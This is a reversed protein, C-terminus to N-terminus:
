RPCLAEALHCFQEGRDQYNKFMDFSACAPSLLVIDGPTALEQAAAVAAALDQVHIMADVVCACAAAIAPADKGFLILTKVSQQVAPSLASFDAGKGVGGALLHINKATGALGNLAAITAGVNTAKSDNVYDVQELCRVFQCRHPLGTFTSLTQLMARENLGAVQGLALAALANLVNHKGRIKIASVPMLLRLGHALHVEGNEHRLGYDKLDPAGLGFRIVKASDALPPQTLADDRNVVYYDAGRYIRQKCQFYHQLSDYRDMHDASINLVTAAIPKLSRTSELQFSSLEIVYLGVAPSLLDLIPTGVNGGMAVAVGSAQAMQAVLTTVTTKGNSGTIAIVPATVARAFLEIDGIVSVGAALAAVIAPHRRPVGPSLIIESVGVWQAFDFPGAIICIEPHQLKFENLLQSSQAEDAICFSKGIKLLYRAVAAGTIGFGVILTTHSSAILDSM